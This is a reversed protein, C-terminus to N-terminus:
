GSGRGGKILPSLAPLPPIRCACCNTFKAWAIPILNHLLQASHALWDKLWTLKKLVEDVNSTDAPYVEVWLTWPKGKQIGIGYDWRADNIPGFNEIRLREVTNPM